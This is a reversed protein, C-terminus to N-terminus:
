FGLIDVNSFDVIEIDKFQVVSGDQPNRALQVGVQLCIFGQRNFDKNTYYDTTKSGNVYVCIHDEFAFIEMQNWADYDVIGIFSRAKTVISGTPWAYSFGNSDYINVELGTNININLSDAHQRIFVGSNHEKSINFKLKLYFNKYPRAYKLFSFNEKNTRGTIIGDQVLWIGDGTIEWGSMDKGNFIKEPLGNNGTRMIDEIMPSSIPTDSLSQLEINKFLAMHRLRGTNSVFGIKGHLSRRNHFENIKTGNLMISIYDGKAVLELSNWAKPDFGEPLFSRSLNMVSGTPNQTDEVNYLNVEYGNYIGTNEDLVQHRIVLGSNNMPPCLFDFKLHFNKYTKDTLLFGREGSSGNAFHIVGSDIHVSADGSITWGTLDEGNFLPNFTLDKAEPLGTEKPQCAGILLLFLLLVFANQPSSNNSIINSNGTM